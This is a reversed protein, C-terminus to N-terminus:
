GVKPIEPVPFLDDLRQKLDPAIDVEAAAANEEVQDVRTAGFITSAVNEHTLCWALALRAPPVGAEDALGCFTEVRQQSAEDMYRAMWVGRDKDSLRSGEPVVGGRYKGTLVGQALPSFVVQSVGERQSVPMIEPEITREMLSFPPQNSVPRPAGMADATRCADAIQEASWCSVGWYHVKGQRILDDMARVVEPVPTDPDYRHCQMLDVYDTRLNVLSEHVAEFIHKRSLGRDNPGEGTPWFCKTALFIDRRKVGELAAGLAREADGRAYVDATDIFNIGLDIAKRTCTTTIDQDVSSGFTLWSGLAVESVRVGSNGLRRYRM